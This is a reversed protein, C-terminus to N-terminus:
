SGLGPFLHEATAGVIKGIAKAEARSPLIIGAEVNWVWWRTKGMRQALGWQRLGHLVRQSKLIYNVPTTTKKM